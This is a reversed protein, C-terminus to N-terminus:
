ERSDTRGYRFGVEERIDKMLLWLKGIAVVSLALAVVWLWSVQLQLWADASQVMAALLFLVSTVILQRRMERHLGQNIRGLFAVDEASNEQAGTHRCVVQWLVQLLLLVTVLTCVAEAIEVLRLVLFQNYPEERYLADMPYFQSMYRQNLLIQALSIGSLTLSSLVLPLKHEM